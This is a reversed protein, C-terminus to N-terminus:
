PTKDILEPSKESQILKEDAWLAVVTWGEEPTFVGDEVFFQIEEDKKFAFFPYAKGHYKNKWDEFEFEETLPTAKFPAGKRLLERIKRVTVGKGFLPYGRYLHSLDHRINRDKGENTHIRYVNNRGLEHSFHLSCLVNEELDDTLMLAKGIGVLNLHAGAHESMPNGLYTNLGALKAQRIGSRSADALTVPIGKEQMIKAMARAVDSSGIVLVGRPTPEAVGLWISLPRLTLSEFAVTGLIVIFVSDILVETGELGLIDLKNALLSAVVVAIIGRPAMWSMVIKERISYGEGTTCTFVCLPRILFQLVLVLLTPTVWGMKMIHEVDLQAALILFLTSLLILSISEKFNMLPDLHLGKMNRLVIGAVTASILGSEEAIANSFIFVSAVFALAAADILHEPILHYRLMLGLGKGVLYGGTLGTALITVLLVFFDFGGGGRYLIFIIEYALISLVAGVPDVLLGEWRLTEAVRATPRMSRLMPQIVTPGSVTMLCGFLFSVEWQVEFLFHMTLGSGVGTIIVGSTILRRVSSSVMKLKPAELALSDEFLIVAVSLSIFYKLMDGFQEEPQLWGTFPGALVGTILLFLIAPVRLRWSLYQCFFGALLICPIIFVEHM